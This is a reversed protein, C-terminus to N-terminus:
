AIEIDAERHYATAWYTMKTNPEFRPQHGCEDIRSGVIHGCKCRTNNHFEYGCCGFSYPDTVVQELLSQPSFWVAKDEPRAGRVFPSDMFWAEGEPIIVSDDEHGVKFGRIEEGFQLSQTLAAQCMKCYLRQMNM